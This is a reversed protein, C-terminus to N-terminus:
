YKLFSFNKDASVYADNGSVASLNVTKSIPMDFLGTKIMGDIQVAKYSKGAVIQALLSLASVRATVDVVKTENGSLNIQGTSKFNALLTNGYKVTGFFENVPVGTKNPNYIQIGFIIQPQLINKLSVKISSISYQFFDISRKVNWSKYGLWALLAIGGGVLLKKNNM